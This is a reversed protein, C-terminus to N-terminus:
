RLLPELAMSLEQPSVTGGFRAAILGAGDIVFTWPESALSWAVVTGDLVLNQYDKYIEVHIFNAEEGYMGYVQEVSDVVPACIQTQCFAPTAFTVVTPRGTAIAEGITLEYLAPTPDLDTTLLALDPEDALTRNDHEPVPDGVAPSSPVEPVEITFQSQTVSGDVQTIQATFGWVGAKEIEPYFVWYPVEYDSYNTASGVWSQVPSGSSLDFGIVAVGQATEVPETGAFLAIPIRPQGVEFDNTVVLVQIDSAVGAEVPSGVADDALAEEEITVPAVDLVEDNPTQCAVMGVLLLWLIVLRLKM